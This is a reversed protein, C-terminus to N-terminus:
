AYILIDSPRPRERRDKLMHRVAPETMGHRWAFLYRAIVNARVAQGESHGFCLHRLITAESKTTGNEMLLRKMLPRGLWRVALKKLDDFREAALERREGCDGVVLDVDDALQDYDEMRAGGIPVKRPQGRGRVESVLEWPDGPERVYVHLGVPIVIPPGNRRRASVVHDACPRREDTPFDDEFLVM